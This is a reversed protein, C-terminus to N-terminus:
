QTKYSKRTHPAYLYPKNDYLPEELDKELKTFWERFTDFNGAVYYIGGAKIVDERTMQQHLSLRDRGIKVEISLHLGNWCAHIDATGKRTTKPKIWQQKKEVWQGQTNIRVAYGGKAEIYRIIAETVANAATQRVKNHLRIRNHM